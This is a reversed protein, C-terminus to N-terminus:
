APLGGKKKDRPYWKMWWIKGNVTEEISCRDCEMFFRVQDGPRPKRPKMERVKLILYASGVGTKGVTTMYDGSEPAGLEAPLDISMRCRPSVPRMVSVLPLASPLQPRHELRAEFLGM